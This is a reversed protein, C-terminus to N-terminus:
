GGYTKRIYALVDIMEQESLEGENPPMGDMPDGKGKKIIELLEKDSKKLVSKDDVFDAGTLGGMGKGDVQHCEECIDIYIQKGSNLDVGLCLSAGAFILFFPLILQVFNKM